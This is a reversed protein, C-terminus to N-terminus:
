CCAPLMDLLLFVSERQTSYMRLKKAIAQEEAKWKQQKVEWDFVLTACQRINAFPTSWNPKLHPTSM